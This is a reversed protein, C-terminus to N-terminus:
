KEGEQEYHKRRGQFCNVKFLLDSRDKFLVAEFAVAFFFL